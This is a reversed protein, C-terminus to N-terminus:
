RKFKDRLADKAGGIANQIGGKARDTKGESQLKADGTINGATEKVSGKMKNGSGEARDKDM